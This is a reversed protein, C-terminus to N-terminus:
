PHGGGSGKKPIWSPPEEKKQLGDCGVSCGPKKEKEPCEKCNM